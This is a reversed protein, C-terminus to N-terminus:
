ARRYVIAWGVPDTGHDHEDDTCEEAPVDEDECVMTNVVVQAWMTPEDDQVRLMEAVVGWSGFMVESPHMVAGRYSDQGTMGTLAHWEGHGEIVVDQEDDHWVVPAHDALSRGDRDVETVDGTAPDIRFVSDFDLSQIVDATTSLQARTLTSM